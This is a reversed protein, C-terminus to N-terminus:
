FLFMCSPEQICVLPRAVKLHTWWTGWRGPWSQKFMTQSLYHIVQLFGRALALCSRNGRRFGEEKRGQLEDTLIESGSSMDERPFSRRGWPHFRTQLVPCTLTLTVSIIWTIKKFSERELGKQCSNNVLWHAQCWVPGSELPMLPAPLCAGSM